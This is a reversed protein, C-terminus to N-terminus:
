AVEEIEYYEKTDNIFRDIITPLLPIPTSVFSVSHIYFRKLEELGRVIEEGEDGDMEMGDKIKRVLFMFATEMDGNTIENTTTTTNSM